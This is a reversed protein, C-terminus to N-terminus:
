FILFSKNWGVKVFWDTWKQPMAKYSLKSALIEQDINTLSQELYNVSNTTQEVQECNDLDLLNEETDLKGLESM